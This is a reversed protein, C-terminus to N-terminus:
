AGKAALQERLTLIRVELAAEIRCLALFTIAENRSIQLEPMGYDRQALQVQLNVYEVNLGAVRRLLRDIQVQVQQPNERVAKAVAFGIISEKAM